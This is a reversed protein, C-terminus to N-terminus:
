YKKADATTLAKNVSDVLVKMDNFEADFAPNKVTNQMHPIPGSFHHDIPHSAHLTLGATIFVFFIVIRHM